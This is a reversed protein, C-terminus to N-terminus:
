DAPWTSAECHHEVSNRENRWSNYTIKSIALKKFSGVGKRNSWKGTDWRYGLPGMADMLIEDGAQINLANTLKVASSTFAPARAELEEIARRQTIQQSKTNMEYKLLRERIAFDSVVGDSTGM